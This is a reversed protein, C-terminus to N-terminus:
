KKIKLFNSTIMQSLKFIVRLQFRSFSFSLTNYRAIFHCRMWCISYCQFINKYCSEQIQGQTRIPNSRYIVILWLLKKIIYKIHIWFKDFIAKLIEIVKYDIVFAKKSVKQYKKSNQRNNGSGPGCKPEALFGEFWNIFRM